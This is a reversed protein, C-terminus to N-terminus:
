SQLARLSVTKVKGFGNVIRISGKKWNIRILRHGDPLAAIISAETLRKSVKRGNINM